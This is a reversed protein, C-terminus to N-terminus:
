DMETLPVKSLTVAQFHLKPLYHERPPPPDRYSVVEQRAAQYWTGKPPHRQRQDWTGELLDGDPTRNPLSGWVSVGYPLSRATRMRSSHM